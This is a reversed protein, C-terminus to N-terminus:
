ESKRSKAIVTFPQPKIGVRDATHFHPDMKPVEGSPAEFDFYKVMSTVFLFIFDYAIDIGICKRRGGGFSIM